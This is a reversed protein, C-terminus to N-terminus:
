LIFLYASATSKDSHSLLLLFVDTDASYVYIIKNGLFDNVIRLYRIMLTYVEEHNNQDKRTNGNLSLITKNNGAIVYEKNGKRMHNIVQQILDTISRKTKSSALLESMGVKEIDTLLM